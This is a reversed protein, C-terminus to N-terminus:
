EEKLSSRDFAAVHLHQCVFVCMCLGEDSTDGCVMIIKRLQIVESFGSQKQQLSRPVFVAPGTTRECPTGFRAVERGVLHKRGSKGKNNQKCTLKTELKTKWSSPSYLVEGLSQTSAGKEGM